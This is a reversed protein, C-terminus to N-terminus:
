VFNVIIYLTLVIKENTLCKSLINKMVAVSESFCWLSEITQYLQLLEERSISDPAIENYEAFERLIADTLAVQEAILKSLENENDNM